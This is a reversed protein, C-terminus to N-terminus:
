VPPPDDGEVKGSLAPVYCQEAYECVMRETTFHAGAARMAHKMMCIWRRPMAEDDREYYMPVVDRELITFLADHDQADVEDDTGESLPIAWGNEGNFGEAWWGDLTSIQPVCNLAAKMGSTGSAEMPVRPLNLWVDVGQILRHAVHLEYDEVFAIRGGFRSDRTLRWVHQLVRKADDDAPHAKGSFVLQVPRRPDTLLRRLREEDHFLLHARKYTAFRRAFGITLPEPSLLTGAGVLHAAEKWLEIWRVRAQERCFKLLAKKLELHIRWVEADDLDLAADWAEPDRHKNEWVEGFPGELLEMYRHAMWSPLHVGNTVGGIPLSAPDRGPWLSTWLGQTVQQHRKSVGNVRAALRIAAATMHFRGADLEPHSGLWFFTERDLPGKAWYDSCVADIDDPSFMDHGAPVPTHTTFISRARVAHRAEELTEGAELHERLREVMMFSAHGENAHWAAPEIGLARLVRVGGVGLIWEQKLRHEKGGGYLQYTLQRDEEHNEALNTDLLYLNVRGAQLRWAGIHVPRRATVLSTLALDGGPATLRVLPMIEPNFVEDSNEQWGELNLKQDFYGKSYLLGVGVLPVGLDSAAKCHDGALVGLGGSYIPISNHLGFEACFYAVPRKPDADAYTTEFWTDTRSLAAEFEAITRDYMALFESDSACHALRGPSVRRLMAVPNHRTASWLVPDIARLMSRARRNWRWWLNLAIRQLGRIREPLYPIKGSVDVM